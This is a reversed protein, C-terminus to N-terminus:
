KHLVQNDILAVEPWPRTKPGCDLAQHSNTWNEALGWPVGCMAKSISLDYRRGVLGQLWLWFFQIVHQSLLIFSAIVIRDKSSLGDWTKNEGKSDSGHYGHHATISKISAQKAVTPQGLWFITSCIYAYAHIHITKCLIRWIAWCDGEIM